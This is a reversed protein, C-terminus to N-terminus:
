DPLANAPDDAAPSDLPEEVGDAPVVGEALGGRERSARFADAYQAIDAFVDVRVEGQIPPADVDGGVKLKMENLGHLAATQRDIKLCRDIADLDGAVAKAYIARVYEENRALLLQRVEEAPQKISKELATRVAKRAGAENAYGLQEAIAAFTNGAKRLELAEVQKQAAAIRRASTPSAAGKATM